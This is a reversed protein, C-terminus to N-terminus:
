ELTQEAAHIAATKINEPSADAGTVNAGLRCMPESLLGGGCGIDLLDLGAFPTASQAELGKFHCVERHIYDLRVPNFKHLPRFKGRPDWWEAAMASFKAIEDPDVTEVPKQM